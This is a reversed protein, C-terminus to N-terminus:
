FERSFQYIAMWKCLSWRGGKGDIPDKMTLNDLGNKQFRIQRKGIWPVDRKTIMKKLVKENNVYETM